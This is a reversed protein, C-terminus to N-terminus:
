LLGSHQKTRKQLMALANLQKVWEEVTNAQETHFAIMFSQSQRPGSVYAYGLYDVGAYTGTTKGEYVLSEGFLKGGFTLDKQPNM